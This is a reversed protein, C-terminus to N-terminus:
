LRITIEIRESAIGLSEALKRKAEAITGTLGAGKDGAPNAPLAYRVTTEAVQLPAAKSL